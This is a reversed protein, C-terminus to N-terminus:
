RRHFTGIQLYIDASTRSIDASTRGSRVGPSQLVPLFRRIQLYKLRGLSRRAGDACRLAHLTHRYRQHLPSASTLRRPLTPRPRHFGTPSSRRTSCRAVRNTLLLWADRHPLVYSSSPSLPRTRSRLLWIRHKHRLSPLQSLDDSAPLSAPSVRWPRRAARTEARAAALVRVQHSRLGPSM